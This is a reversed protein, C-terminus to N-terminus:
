YMEWVYGVGSDLNPKSSWEKKLNKQLKGYYVITVVGRCRKLDNEGEWRPRPQSM